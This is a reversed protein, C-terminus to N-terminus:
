GPKIQYGFLLGSPVIPLYYLRHLIEPSPHFGPLWRNDLSFIALLMLVIPLVKWPLPVFKYRIWLTYPRGPRERLPGM